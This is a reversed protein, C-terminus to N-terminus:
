HTARGQCAQQWWSSPRLSCGDAPPGDAWELRWRGAPLVPRVWGASGLLEKEQCDASDWVECGPTKGSGKLMRREGQFGILCHSVGGWEKKEMEEEDERKGGSRAEMQPLWRGLARKVSVRLWKKSKVSSESVTELSKGSLFKKTM